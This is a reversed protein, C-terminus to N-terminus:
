AKPPPLEPAPIDARPARDSFASAVTLSPSRTHMAITRAALPAAACSAIAACCPIEGARDAQGSKSHSSSPACDAHSSATTRADSRPSACAAATGVVIFHVMALLTLMGLSRRLTM